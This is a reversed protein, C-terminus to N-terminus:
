YASGTRRSSLSDYRTNDSHVTQKPSLVEPTVGMLQAVEPTSRLLHCTVEKTLKSNHALLIPRWPGLSLSPIPEHFANLTPLPKALKDRSLEVWISILIIHLGCENSNKPQRIHCVVRRLPIGMWGFYRIFDDRTCPAAASDYIIASVDDNVRRIVATAWHHRTHVPLILWDGINPLSARIRNGLKRAANPGEGCMFFFQYADIYNHGLAQQLVTDINRDSLCNAFDGGKVEQLGRRSKGNPKTPTSAAVTTTVAVEGAQVTTTKTDVPKNNNRGLIATPRTTSTNAQAPREDLSTTSPSTTDSRSANGLTSSGARAQRAAPSETCARNLNVDGTAPPSIM